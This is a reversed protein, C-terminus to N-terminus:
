SVMAEGILRYNPKSVEVDAVVQRDDLPSPLPTTNPTTHEEVTKDDASLCFM